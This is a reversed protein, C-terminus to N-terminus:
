MCGFLEEYISDIYNVVDISMPYRASESWWYLEVDKTRTNLYINPGGCAIMIRVSRYEKDNGITYEVDYVDDGLWDLIDVPYVDGECLEEGDAMIYMDNEEDYRCGNVESFDDTDIPFLEGDYMFYDGSAVQELNEAIAKCHEYNENNMTM